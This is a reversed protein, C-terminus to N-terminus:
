IVNSGRSHLRLIYWLPVVINKLEEKSRIEIVTCSFGDLYKCAFTYELFYTVPITYLTSVLGLYM